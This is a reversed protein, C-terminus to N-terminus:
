VDDSINLKLKLKAQQEKGATQAFCFHEKIEGKKKREKWKWSKTCPKLVTTVCCQQVVVSQRVCVCM